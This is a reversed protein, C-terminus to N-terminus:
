WVDRHQMCFRHVGPLLLCGRAPAWESPRQRVDPLADLEPLAHYFYHPEDPDENAGLPPPPQTTDVEFV